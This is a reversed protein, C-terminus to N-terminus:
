RETGKRRERIELWVTCIFSGALVTAVLPSSFVGSVYEYLAHFLPADPWFPYAAAEEQIWEPVPVARIYAIRIRTLGPPHGLFVTLFSVISAVLLTGPVRVFSKLWRDPGRPTAPPLPNVGAM